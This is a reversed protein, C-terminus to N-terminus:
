DSLGGVIERTAVFTPQPVAQVSADNNRGFLAKSMTVPLLLLSVAVGAAIATLTLSTMSQM